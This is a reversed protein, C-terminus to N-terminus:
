VLKISKIVIGPSLISKLFNRRFVGSECLIKFNNSTLLNRMDAFTFHNLHGGSYTEKDNTTKPFKGKVVLDFVHGYYRINPTSIVLIGSDRLVRSIEKILNIPYLVHEIVDSCTVADFYRDPYPLKEQNLNVKKTIMGRKKAIKLATKSIDVGYIKRYKNKTLYGLRGDGCGVDLLRNGGDLLNVIIYIRSDKEVKPTQIKKQDAWIKEYVREETKM